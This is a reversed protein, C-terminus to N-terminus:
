GRKMLAEAEHRPCWLAKSTGGQHCDTCAAWRCGPADCLFGYDRARLVQGCRGCPVVRTGADGDGVVDATDSAEDGSAVGESMADADAAAVEVRCDAGSCVQWDTGDQGASASRATVTLLGSADREIRLKGLERTAARYDEAFVEVYAEESGLIPKLSREHLSRRTVASVTHAARRLEVNNGVRLGQFSRGDGLNPVCRMLACRVARSSWQRLPEVWFGGGAAYGVATRRAYRQQVISPFLYGNRPSQRRAHWRVWPIVYQGVMWHDVLVTRPAGRRQGVRARRQKPRHRPAVRVANPGAETVQEILLGGAGSVRRAAVAGLVVLAAAAAEWLTVPPSRRLGEAVEWAFVPEAHRTEAADGAGLAAAMTRSRPWTAGRSYGLRDILARVTGGARAGGPGADAAGGTAVWASHQRECRTLLWAEVAIDYHEGTIGGAATLPAALLRPNAQVFVRLQAVLARAAANTRPARTARARAAATAADGGLLALEDEGILPVGGEILRLELTLAERVTSPGSPRLM